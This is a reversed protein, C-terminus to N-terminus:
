TWASTEFSGSAWAITQRGEVPEAPEVDEVVVRPDHRGVVPRHMEVSSRIQSRTSAILTLPTANPQLYPM